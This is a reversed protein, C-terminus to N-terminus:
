RVLIYISLEAAYSAVSLGYFRSIYNSPYVNTNGFHFRHANTDNSYITSSWYYSNSGAHLLSETSLTMRGGRVDTYQSVTTVITTTQRSFTLAM